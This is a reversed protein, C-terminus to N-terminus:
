RILRNFLYKLGHKGQCLVQVTALEANVLIIAVDKVTIAEQVHIADVQVMVFMVHLVLDM